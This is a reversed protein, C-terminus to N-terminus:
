PVVTLTLDNGDGGEYNAQLHQQRDHNRRMLYTASPEESRPGAQTTSSPLFLVPRSRPTDKDAFQIKTGGRIAVGNAIVQDASPVDSNLLIFCTANSFLNLRGLITLTGPM